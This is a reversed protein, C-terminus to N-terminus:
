RRSQLDLKLARIAKSVLAWPGLASSAHNYVTTGNGKEDVIEYDNINTRGTINSIKLARLVSKKGAGNVLEITVILM